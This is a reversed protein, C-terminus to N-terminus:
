ALNTGWASGWVRGWGAPVVDLSNASIDLRHGQFSEYGNRKSHLTMYGVRVGETAGADLDEMAHVINYSVTNGAINDVTRSLDDTDNYIRLVYTTGPEPGIDGIEHGILQDGQTIRDRHSWTFVFEPEDVDLVLPALFASDGNVKFNGPPYPRAFRRNFTLANPPSNEVAMSGSGSRMLLKVGITETAVYEVSDTGTAATFFWVMDGFNHRAPVTDACGRAVGILPLSVSTVRMIEDNIMLGMGVSPQVGSPGSYALVSINAAARNISASLMASPTPSGGGRQTYDSNAM